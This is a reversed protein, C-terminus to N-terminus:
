QLKRMNRQLREGERGGWEREEEREPVWQDATQLSLNTQIEWKQFWIVHVKKEPKKFEEYIM